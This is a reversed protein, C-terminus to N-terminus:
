SILTLMFAKSIMTACGVWGGGGGGGGCVCLDMCGQVSVWVWGRLGQHCELHM